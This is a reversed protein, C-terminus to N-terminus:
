RLANNQCEERIIEGLKELSFTESYVSRSVKTPSRVDGKERVNMPCCVSDRPSDSDSSNNLDVKKVSYLVSTKSKKSRSTRAVVNGSAEAQKM